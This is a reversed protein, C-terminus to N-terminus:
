WTWLPAFILVSVTFSYIPEPLQSCETILPFCYVSTCLAICLLYLCVKLVQQQIFFMLFLVFNILVILLFEFCVLVQCKIINCKYRLYINLAKYHTCIHFPLSCFHFIPIFSLFIGSLFTIIPYWSSLYIISKINKVWPM